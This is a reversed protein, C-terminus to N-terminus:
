CPMMAMDATHRQPQMSYQICSMCTGRSACLSPYLRYVSYGIGEWTAAKIGVLAITAVFGAAVRSLSAPSM